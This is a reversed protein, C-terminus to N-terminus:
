YNATAIEENLVIYIYIYIYQFCDKWNYYSMCAVPSCNYTRGSFLFANGLTAMTYLNYVSPWSKNNLIAALLVYEKLHKSAISAAILSTWVSQKFMLDANKIVASWFFFMDIFHLIHM